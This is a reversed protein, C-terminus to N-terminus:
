KRSRPSQWRGRLAQVVVSMVETLNHHAEFIEESSLNRLVEPSALENLSRLCDRFKEKDNRNEEEDAVVVDEAPAGSHESAMQVPLVSEILKNLQTEKDCGQPVDTAEEDEKGEEPSLLKETGLYDASPKESSFLKTRLACTERQPTSLDATVQVTKTDHASLPPSLSGEEDSGVNTQDAPEGRTECKAPVAGEGGVDIDVDPESSKLEDDSALKKDESTMKEDDVRNAIESENSKCPESSEIEVATSKLTPDPREQRSVVAETKDVLSDEERNPQAEVSVENPLQADETSVAIETSFFFVSSVEGSLHLM